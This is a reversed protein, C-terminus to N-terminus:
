SCKISVCLSPSPAPAHQLALTHVTRFRRGRERPPMNMAVGEGVAQVTLPM